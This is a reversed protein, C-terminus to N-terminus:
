ECLIWDTLWEQNTADYLRRYKKGDVEKYHWLTQAIKGDRSEEKATIIQDQNTYATKEEKVTTTNGVGDMARLRCGVMGQMKKKKDM